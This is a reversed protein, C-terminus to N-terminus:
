PKPPITSPAASYVHQMASDSTGSMMDSRMQERDMMMQMMMTMMKMHQHMAVGSMGGGAKGHDMHQMASMGEMMAEMHERMLAQREAPTKAAMMREHMQQMHQMPAASPAEPLPASASSHEHDHAAPETAQAAAITFPSLLTTCAIILTRNMRNM